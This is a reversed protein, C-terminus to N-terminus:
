DIMKYTSLKSTNTIRIVVSSTIFAQVFKVFTTILIILSSSLLPPQL